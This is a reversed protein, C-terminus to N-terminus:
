SFTLLTREVGYPPAVCRKRSGISGSVTFKGPHSRFIEYRQNSPKLPRRDVTLSAPRSRLDRQMAGHDLGQLIASAIAESVSVSSAV